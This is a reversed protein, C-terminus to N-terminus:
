FKVKAGATVNRGPAPYYGILGTFSKAGYTSYRADLINRVSVWLDVNKIGYSTNWDVTTYQKLKPQANAQDSIAFREGLFDARFTTSLRDIPRFTIGAHALREAVFPIEKDDYKGKKFRAEQVTLNAFPQVKGDMLDVAAEWEAGYHQTRGDYNTNFFTDPDLYIEKRYQAFFVASGLRVNKFSNDKIGLEFQNGVQHTLNTNLGGSVFGFSDALNQYFEDTAPLRYSRAYNFFVKSDPHYRYGMGGEYGQTASDRTSKNVLVAKQDFEYDAWAGRVGANFLWQEEVELENLLYVGHTEKTVETVDAPFSYGLSPDTIFGNRRDENAHFYDYGATLTSEVGDAVPTMIVVKPQIEYSNTEYRSEFYSSDTFLKSFKRRGSGFVSFEGDTAGATFKLRPTANFNADTTWGHDFNRASRVGERGFQEINSIFLAGPLQFRDRHYGQNFDIGFRDTPDFNLRTNYNNAWYDSNARYGTTEEHGYNFRYALDKIGGTLEMNNKSTQYSGWETSLTVSPKASPTGKKTVINIIGGVANDGYLVTGTGKIIEVHDITEPDFVSWDVGSLDIQNTRRGDLLVLVNTGAAEGFGRIDVYSNKITGYQIGTVGAQTGLMEPLSKSEGIAAFQDETVVSVNRTTDAFSEGSRLAEVVIENLNIGQAWGAGPALLVSVAVSLVICINM